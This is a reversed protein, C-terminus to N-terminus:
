RMGRYTAAHRLGAAELDAEIEVLWAFHDRVAAARVEREAAVSKALDQAVALVKRSGEDVAATRMELSSIAGHARLLQDRLTGLEGALTEVAGDIRDIRETAALVDQRLGAVAGELRVARDALPGVSELARRVEALEEAHLALTERFPALELMPGAVPSSGVAPSERSPGSDSGDAEGTPDDGNPRSDSGDAGDGRVAITPGLPGEGDPAQVPGARRAKKERRLVAQRLADGPDPSGSAYGIRAAAEAWSLGGVRHLMAGRAVTGDGTDPESSTGEM